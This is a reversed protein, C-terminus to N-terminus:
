KNLIINVIQLIDAINILNDGNADANKESFNEQWDGMLYKLIMTIDNSDVIDDGNADGKISGTAQPMEMTEEMNCDVNVVQSDQTVSAELTESAEAKYGEINPVVIYEGVPINDFRYNGNADTETQAIIAGSKKDKLFVTYTVSADLHLTKSRAAKAGITIKGTIASTGTLAPPAPQLNIIFAFNEDGYKDWFEHFDFNLSKAENWVLSQPYYTDLTSGDSRHAKLLLSRGSPLETEIIDSEETATITKIVGIKGEFNKGLIDVTALKVDEGDKQVKIRVPLNESGMLVFEHYGDWHRSWMSLKYPSSGYKVEYGMYEDTNCRVAYQGPQLTSILGKFTKNVEKDQENDWFTVYLDNEPDPLIYETNLVFGEEGFYELSALIPLMIIGHSQSTKFYANDYTGQVESVLEYGTENVKPTYFDGTAGEIETMEYTNPNRLFWRYSVKIDNRPVDIWRKEKQSEGPVVKCDVYHSSVNYGAYIFNPESYGIGVWISKYPKEAFVENSVWGDMPGGNMVLRYTIPWAKEEVKDIEIWAQYPYDSYIQEDSINLWTDSGATHYQITYNDGGFDSAPLFQLDTSVFYRYYSFMYESDLSVKRLSLAGFHGEQAQALQPPAPLQGKSGPVVEVLQAMATNIAFVTMLSLLLAKRIITKM